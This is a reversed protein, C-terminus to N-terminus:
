ITNTNFESLSFSLADTQNIKNLQDNLREKWREYLEEYQNTGTSAGRCGTEQKALQRQM